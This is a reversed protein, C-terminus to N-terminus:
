GRFKGKKKSLRASGFKKWPRELGRPAARDIARWGDPPQAQPQSTEATNQDHTSFM